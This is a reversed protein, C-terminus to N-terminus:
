STKMTARKAHCDAVLDHQANAIQGLGIAGGSLLDRHQAPDVEVDVRALHDPQRPEGALVNVPVQEYHADKEGLLMRVTRVYTSGDFGYLVISTM